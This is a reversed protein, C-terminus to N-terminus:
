ELLGRNRFDDITKGIDALPDTGPPIEFNERMKQEIDTLSHRGDLLDWIFLSTVNLVHVNESAPDYIM